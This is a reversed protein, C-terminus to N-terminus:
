EAALVEILKQRSEAAGRLNWVQSNRAQVLIECHGRVEALERWHPAHHGVHAELGLHRLELLRQDWATLSMLGAEM